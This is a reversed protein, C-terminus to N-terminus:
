KTPLTAQSAAWVHLNILLGSPFNREAPLLVGNRGAAPEVPLDKARVHIAVGTATPDTLFPWQKEWNFRTSQTAHGTAFALALLFAALPVLAM